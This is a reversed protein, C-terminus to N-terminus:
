AKRTKLPALAVTLNRSGQRTADGALIAPAKLVHKRQLRGHIDHRAGAKDAAHRNDAQHDEHTAIKVHEDGFM